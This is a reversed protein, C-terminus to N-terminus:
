IFCQQQMCASGHKLTTFSELEFFIFINKLNIIAMACDCFLIAGFLFLNPNKELIKKYNILVSNLGRLNFFFLVMMKLILNGKMNYNFLTFRNTQFWSVTCQIINLTCQIINLTSQVSYLTWHVSYVTYHEIYETCHM